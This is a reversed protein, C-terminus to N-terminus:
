ICDVKFLKVFKHCYTDHCAAYYKVLCDVEFVEYFTPQYSLGKSCKQLSNMSFFGLEFIKKKKNSLKEFNQM